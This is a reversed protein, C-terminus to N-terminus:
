KILEKIEKLMQWAGNKPIGEKNKGAANKFKDYDKFVKDILNKLKKPTAKDQNLVQAFGANEAYNANETQEKAAAITLPIFISPKSLMLCEWVTNAGSRGIVMDARSLVAGHDSGVLYKVALYNENNIKKAKDFDGKFNALGVQHIIRHEGLLPMSSFILKNIFHSGQNGGTIFLVKKDTKLFKKLPISKAEAQYVSSRMLNGIVETNNNRLYKASQPWTLFIKQAFRSNIKTSLGPITTQEHAISKIGLLYAGIVVPTSLYSGFSVVLDPKEKKLYLVAQSFGLPLKVLSPITYKTFKRQLRGTKIEYFKIKKAKIIKYEASEVSSGETSYKRGFFVIEIDKEKELVEILALAPTLHGGCIVIKKM